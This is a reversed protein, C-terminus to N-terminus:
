PGRYDVYQTPIDASSITYRQRPQDTAMVWSAVVQEGILIRWTQGAYTNVKVPRGPSLEEWVQDEWYLKAYLLDLVEFSASVALVPPKEYRGTDVNRTWSGAKPGNWVWMAAIMKEGQVIPCSAHLAQTDPLGNPKQVYFVLAELRQPRVTFRKRCQEHVSHEWSTSAFYPLASLDDYARRLMPDSIRDRFKREAPSMTPDPLAPPVDVAMWVWDNSDQQATPDLLPFVTEGGEMPTKLYLYVAIFRNTGEYASNYDHSALFSPEIWDQHIDYGQSANYRLVQWGEAYTGDYPFVGLLDLVRRRLRLAVDSKLMAADKSLDIRDGTMAELPHEMGNQMSAMFENANIEMETDTETTLYSPRRPRPPPPNSQYEEVADAILADAEYENFFNHLRFIRPYESLTELMIPAFSPQGLHIIDMTTAAGRTPFIFMRKDPVVFVSDGSSIDACSTIRTGWATYLACNSAVMSECIVSTLDDGTTCIADDLTVVTPAVNWEGNPYVNVTFPECYLCSKSTPKVRLWIPNDAVVSVSVLCLIVAVIM